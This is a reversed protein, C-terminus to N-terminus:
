ISIREILKQGEPDFIIIGADCDNLQGILAGQENWVASQGACQGGDAPGICNAMGVIMGYQKAIEALRHKAQDVGKAFKAVSALYIRAGRQFAAEAHAPVSLEYCIALALDTQKIRLGTLNPGSVFFPEEDAHLYKKAYTQRARGPQFLLMSICIGPENKTPLGLGITIPGSDSITQFDDLRSDDPRTALDKALTPEYGTLSLEPFIIMDAGHSVALAIMKKHNAINGQVDATIPKTQALCIKM